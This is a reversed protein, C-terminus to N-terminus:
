LYERAGFIATGVRVITAGEMIAAELDGSMGMSLTDLGLDAAQEFLGRLGAFQARQGAPDAAARPIAMFGRLRLRPLGAVARALALAADPAVGHKSAEGSVNVQICVNLAPLGAPRAESLRQAIKLRDVGHVWAFREAIPRTKNSQLPGIFHWEIALDALDAQKALAEQLYSEGFATQGAQWAARLSAAPFTKGVALLAVSGPARGAARCAEAIRARCAQLGAAIAGMIAESGKDNM